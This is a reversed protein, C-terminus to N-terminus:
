PRPSAPGASAAASSPISASADPGAHLALIAALEREGFGAARRAELNLPGRLAGRMAQPLMAIFQEEPDQGRGAALHRLWRSGCAVHGLEEALIQELVEASAADGAARLASILGPSVDLGRAELVRPVLAMRALPDEATALAAQWLGDHAPFDGYRRGYAALRAELWGFHRAEDAAVALWDRYYDEPLGPFRWVADLALQIASFEIHCLAHLLAARGAPSGVGRAPLRGPAVLTPREPRGPERVPPGPPPRDPDIALRRAALREAIAAVLARKRGPDRERLAVGAAARLEGPLEPAPSAPDPRSM